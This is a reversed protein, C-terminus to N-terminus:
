GARGGVSSNYLAPGTTLIGRSRHRLNAALLEKGLEKRWAGSDDFSVWVVGSYDSPVELSRSTESERASKRLERDNLRPSTREGLALARKGFALTGNGLALFPEALALFPEGSALTRKELAFTRRGFALRPKEFVM